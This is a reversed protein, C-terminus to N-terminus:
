KRRWGPSALGFLVAVDVVGSAVQAGITHQPLSRSLVLALAVLGTLYPVAKPPIAPEGTSSNSAVGEQDTNLTPRGATVTVGPNEM